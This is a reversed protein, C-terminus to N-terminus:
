TALFFTADTLTMSPATMTVTSGPALQFEVFAEPAEAKAGSKKMTESHAMSDALGAGAGAGSALDTPIPMVVAARLTLKDSDVGLAKMTTKMVGGLDARGALQVGSSFSLTNVNFYSDRVIKQLDPPMKVTDLDFDATSISIIPDSLSTGGLIKQVNDKLLKPLALKTNIVLLFTQQARSNKFFYLQLQGSKTSYCDKLDGGCSTKKLTKVMGQVEDKIGEIPLAGLMKKLSPSIEPTDQAQASMNLALAAILIFCAKVLLRTM